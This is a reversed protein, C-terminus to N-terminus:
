WLAGHMKCYNEKGDLLQKRFEAAREGVEKVAPFEDNEFHRACIEYAALAKETQGFMEFFLGQAFGGHWGRLPRRAATAYVFRILRLAVM